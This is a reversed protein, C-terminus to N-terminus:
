GAAFRMVHGAFAPSVRVADFGAESLGARLEGPTLLRHPSRDVIHVARALRTDTLDYGVFRGAPRLVRRVEALATEWGVVHHLMLHSVCYDFSDDPFPLRTADAQQATAPRDRIQRGMAAVMAPDVDTLTLRVDPCRELVGAAMSGAGAGIELVDGRLDVDRLAWPLVVSRTWWRWPASRCFVQEVESMTPM